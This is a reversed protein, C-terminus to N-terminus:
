FSPDVERDMSHMLLLQLMQLLSFFYDFFNWSRKNKNNIYFIFLFNVTLQTIHMLCVSDQSALFEALWMPMWMTGHTVASPEGPRM